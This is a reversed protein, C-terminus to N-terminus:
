SGEEGGIGEWCGKDGTELGAGMGMRRARVSEDTGVRSDELAEGVENEAEVCAESRKMGGLFGARKSESSFGKSTPLSNLIM